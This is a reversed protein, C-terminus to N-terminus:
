IRLVLLQAHISILDHIPSHIDLAPASAQPASAALDPTPQISTAPSPLAESRAEDDCCDDTVGRLATTAKSCGGHESAEGPCPCFLFGMSLAALLAATVSSRFWSRMLGMYARPRAETLGPRVPDSRDVM